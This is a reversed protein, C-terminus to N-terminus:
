ASSGRAGQNAQAARVSREGETAGEPAEDVPLREDDPVAMDGADGAGGGLHASPTALGVGEGPDADTSVAASAANDIRQESM